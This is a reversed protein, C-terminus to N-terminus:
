ICGSKPSQPERSRVAAFFSERAMMTTEAQHSFTYQAMESVRDQELRATDTKESVVFQQPPKSNHDSYDNPQSNKSAFPKLNSHVKMMNLM